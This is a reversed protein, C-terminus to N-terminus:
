YGELVRRLQVTTSYEGGAVSHTAKEIIYKGDFMGWRALMVTVGAVLRVDGVLTFEAQYEGKNKQRLRRRALERAEGRSRVRENIRLTQGNPSAGPPTFTYNHTQGTAPDTYTVRSRAYKADNAQTGFRWGTINGAGRQITTVHPKQEYEAADFLVIIGGSAKLSIGANYCLGQLFVVDSLEVQEKRDFLPDYSSEYMLTMGADSAIEGAIASLKINEWARTHTETRLTDTHPLSTAKIEVAAPPGSSDVSDIEFKGCPLIRSNGDSEFNHQIIVASMEAGKTGDENDLWNELWVGERDDLSIQLDDAYDEEHDTYTMQLLYRNADESIDAGDISVAITTRRASASM